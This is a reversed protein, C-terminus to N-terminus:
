SKYLVPRIPILEYTPANRNLSKLSKTWILKAQSISRPREIRINVLPVFHTSLKKKVANLGSGMDYSRTKHIEIEQKIIELLLLKTPSYAKFSPDFAMLNGYYTKKFSFGLACAIMQGDVELWYHRAIGNGASWDLIKQFSKAGNSDDFLSYRDQGKQIHEQQRNRHLRVIEALISASLNDASFFDIASCNDALRKRCRRLDSRYKAPLQELYEEFSGPLTIKSSMVKNDVIDYKPFLEAFYRLNSSSKVCKDLDLLDWDLERGNVLFHHFARLCPEVYNNDIFLFDMEEVSLLPLDIDGLWYLRSLYLQEIRKQEVLFPALGVMRDNDRAILFALNDPKTYCKRGRCWVVLMSELWGTLCYPVANGCETVFRDFEDRITVLEDIDQILSVEIM